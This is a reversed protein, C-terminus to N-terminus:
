RSRRSTRRSLTRLRQAVGRKRPLGGFDPALAVRRSEAVAFEGLRFFAARPELAVWNPNGRGANLMMREGRHKALDVLKNKLEFPSLGEYRREESREM